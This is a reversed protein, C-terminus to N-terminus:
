HHCQNEGYQTIVTNIFAKSLNKAQKFDEELTPILASRLWFKDIVVTYSLLKKFSYLSKSYLRQNNIRQSKTLNSYHMAKSWFGLWTKFVTNSHKLECPNAEVGM